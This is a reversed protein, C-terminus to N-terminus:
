TEPQRLLPSPRPTGRRRHVQGTAGDIELWDGDSFLETADRLALVAPLGFERALTTAHQLLAGEEVVLGSIRLLLPAQHPHLIRLVLIAGAPVQPSEGGRFVCAM